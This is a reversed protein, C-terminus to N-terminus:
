SRFAALQRSQVTLRGAADWLTCDEDLLGGGVLQATQQVQQWGPEPVARLLVQLQLTPVWGWLGLDFTVPPLGDALVYQAVLPDWGEALRTWGRYDAQGAPEGDAWRCTAPDLLLEVHSLHGPTREKGAGARVDRCAQPPAVAPPGAAPASWVPASDAGPLRGATLQVHMCARGGQELTASFSAVSRGARLGTVAVEAPGPEPPSVYLASAAVPHPHREPDACGMAAAVATGLLYGGHLKDGIGWSADLEVGVRTATGAPASM